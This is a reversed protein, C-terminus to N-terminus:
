SKVHSVAVDYKSYEFVSLQKGVPSDFGVGVLAGVLVAHDHVLEKLKFAKLHLIYVIYDYGGYNRRHQERQLM